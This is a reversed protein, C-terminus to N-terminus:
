STKGTHCSFGAVPNDIVFKKGYWRGRIKKGAITIEQAGQSQQYQKIQARLFNSEASPEGAAHKLRQEYMAITSRLNAIRTEYM